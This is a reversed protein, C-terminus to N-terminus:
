VTAIIAIASAPRPRVYGVEHPPPRDVLRMLLDLSREDRGVDRAEGRQGFPQGRVPALASLFQGDQQVLAEAPHDLDDVAVATVDELEATVRQEHQELPGLVGGPCGGCAEVHARQDLTAPRGGEHLADLEADRLPDVGAREVQVEDVGAVALQEDDPRSHRRRDVALTGGLSALDQEAMLRRGQEVIGVETPTSVGSPRASSRAGSMRTGCGSASAPSSRGTSGNTGSQSISCVAAPTTASCRVTVTPNTNKPPTSASRLTRLGRLRGPAVGPVRWRRGLPWPSVLRVPQRAVDVRTAALDDEGGAGGARGSLVLVGSHSGCAFEELDVDPQRHSDSQVPARDEHSVESGLSAARERHHTIGHVKCGPQHLLRCRALKNRALPARGRARGRELGRRRSGNRTLPLVSGM